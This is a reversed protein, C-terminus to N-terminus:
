LTILHGVKYTFHKKVKLIKINEKEEFFIMVDFLLIHACKSSLTSIGFVSIKM